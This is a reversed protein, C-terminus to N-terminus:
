IGTTNGLEETEEAGAIQNGNGTYEDDRYRGEVM